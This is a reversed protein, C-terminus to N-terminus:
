ANNVGRELKNLYAFRNWEEDSLQPIDFIPVMKKGINERSGKMFGLLYSNSVIEMKTKSFEIIEKAESTKIDHEPEFLSGYVEIVQLTKNM